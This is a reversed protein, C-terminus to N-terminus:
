ALMEQWKVYLLVALGKLQTRFLLQTSERLGRGFLRDLQTCLLELHGRQEAPPQETGVVNSALLLLSYSLYCAERDPDAPEELGGTLVLSRLADPQALVLFRCLVQLEAHVGPPPVTGLPEGLLRAMAHLSLHRRLERDRGTLDPLLQVLAVLNHHHRSLQCLAQCLVPLQQHWHCIGQLLCRLLLQLEPLPQCRLARDLGLFSLLTVLSLRAGDPYHCPQTVVCLALFKCIDGLQTVLALTDTADPSAPRPSCSPELSRGDTPRLEPPLLPSLNAGLRAFAEGIEQVTPCWLEGGTSLWIEWLAQAANTTNPCLTMLQFLWRLVPLPCPPLCRYLLSLWGDRVFAAQWAPSECFFLAELNNRPELGRTDLMPLPAPCACFVPEGPHVTPIFRPEMAFRALVDRHEKPLESDEDPSEPSSIDDARQQVLTAAQGQERQERVLSDLSNTLPDPRPSVVQQHGPPSPSTDGALLMDRLPILEEDDESDTLSVRDRVTGPSHGGSSRSGVAHQGRDSDGGSSGAAVEPLVPIDGSSDQTVPSPPFSTVDQRHPQPQAPSPLRRARSVQKKTGPSKKPHRPARVGGAGRPRHSGRPPSHAPPPGPPWPELLGPPPGAVLRGVRLNKHARLQQYRQLSDQFGFSFIGSRPIRASSLPIQYWRLGEPHPAM